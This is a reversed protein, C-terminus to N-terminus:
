TFVLPTGSFQQAFELINTFGKRVLLLPKRLEFLLRRQCANLQVRM